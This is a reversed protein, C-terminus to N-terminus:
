ALNSNKPVADACGRPPNGDQQLVWQRGLPPPGRGVVMPTGVTKAGM